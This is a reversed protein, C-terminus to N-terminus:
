GRECVVVVAGVPFAVGGDARVYGRLEREAASLLRQYQAEDIFQALTWGKVDVTVWEEISPFRAAGDVRRLEADPMGAEAFLARLTREDGLTFPARLEDAVRKGFLRELLTVMDAYGPSAELPAWVAVAIRGGPRTARAMEKLAKARDEFFMLAFQCVVADFSADAFPLSEAMGQRWDIQPAKRRAVALMGENRDLGTATGGGPAVRRAAERTLVGTGCAVDLVRQGPALGAAEAMPAAFQEFLAPVFFDDYIEAASRTVQGTSSAQTRSTQPQSM